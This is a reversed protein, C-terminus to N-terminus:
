QWIFSLVGVLVPIAIFTPWFVRRRSIRQASLRADVDGQLFYHDDGAKALLRARVLRRVIRSQAALDPLLPKATDASRAGGDRLDDLIAEMTANQRSVVRIGAIMALCAAIPIAPLFRQM